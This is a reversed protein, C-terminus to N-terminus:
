EEEESFIRRVFKRASKFRMVIAGGVLTGIAMGTGNLVGAAVHNRATSDTWAMHVATIVVFLIVGLSLTGTGYAMAKYSFRKAQSVVNCDVNAKM